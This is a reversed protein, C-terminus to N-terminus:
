ANQQVTPLPHIHLPSIGMEAFYDDLFSAFKNEGDTHFIKDDCQREVRRQWPM